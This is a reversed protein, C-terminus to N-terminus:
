NLLIKIAILETSKTHPRRVAPAALKSNKTSKMGANATEMAVREKKPIPLIHYFIYRSKDFTRGPFVQTPPLGMLKM